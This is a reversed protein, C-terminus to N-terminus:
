HTRYRLLIKAAWELFAEDKREEKEMFKICRKGYPTLEGRYRKKGYRRYPEPSHNFSRQLHSQNQNSYSHRFSRRSRWRNAIYFLQRSKYGYPCLFYYVFSGSILNSEEQLIPILQKYLQGEDRWEITLTILGDTDIAVIPFFTITYDLGKLSLPKKTTVEKGTEIVRKILPMFWSLRISPNSHLNRYYEKRMAEDTIPERELRPAQGVEM